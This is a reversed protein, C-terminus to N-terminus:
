FRWEFSTSLNFKRGYVQEAFAGISLTIGLYMNQLIEAEVGPLFTWTKLMSGNIYGSSKIGGTVGEDLEVEAVLQHLTWGYLPLVFEFNLSLRDAIFFRVMPSIMIKRVGFYGDYFYEAANLDGIVEGHWYEIKFDLHFNDVPEFTGILRVPFFFAEIGSLAERAEPEVTWFWAGHLWMFDVGLGIGWNGRDVFNYKTSVNMLGVGFHALNFSISVSKNPAYTFGFVAAVDSVQSGFLGADLRWQGAAPTFATDHVPREEKSQFDRAQLIQSFLVATCILFAVPYIKNAAVAKKFVRM